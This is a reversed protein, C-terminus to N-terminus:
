KETERDVETDMNALLIVLLNHRLLLVEILDPSMILILLLIWEEVGLLILSQLLLHILGEVGVLRLVLLLIWEEVGLRLHLCRLFLLHLLDTDVRLHKTLLGTEPISEEIMWDRTMVEGDTEKTTMVETMLLNTNVENVETIMPNWECGKGAAEMDAPLDLMLLISSEPDVVAIGMEQTVEELHTM